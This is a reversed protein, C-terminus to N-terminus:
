KGARRSLRSMTYLQGPGFDRAWEVKQKDDAPRYFVPEGGDEREVFVISSLPLLDLLYPSHTTAIIQSRGSQVVNQIEEVILHITRPDLGNELEDILILPPPSPHRLVALLALVRLTGSSLLWGPLKFDSEIMQLYVSRELESTLQPQVDAAYPLVYQLTEVIGNFASLDRQRIDLLYQGINSGDKALNIRGATRKQPRPQGMPQPLLSLFQWNRVYENFARVHRFLSEADNLVGFTMEKESHTEMTSGQALERRDARTSGIKGEEHEVFLTNESGRENIVSVVRFPDKGTNGTLRFSIPKSSRPLGTARSRRTQTVAIKNRIHEIGHWAQFAADLDQTVFLFFTELAEMLSSKGCGNNGILVTLPTLRLGGSNRIAKFNGIRVSRLIPRKM